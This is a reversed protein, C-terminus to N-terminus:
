GFLGKMNTPMKGSSLKKMLGQMQQFQRMVQNVEQVSTGSGAAIRKRRSADLVRPSNRERLTMSSIIAEVQKLQRDVDEQKVQKMMEGMGPMMEM